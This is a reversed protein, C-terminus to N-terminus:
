KTEKGIRSGKEERMEKSLSPRIDEQVIQVPKQIQETYEQHKKNNKTYSKNKADNKLTSPYGNPIRM